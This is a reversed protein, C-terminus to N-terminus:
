FFVLLLKFLFLKFNSDSVHGVEAASAMKAGTAIIQNVDSFTPQLLLNCDGGIAICGRLKAAQQILSSNGCLGDVIVEGPLPNM